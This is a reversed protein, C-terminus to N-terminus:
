YCSVNQLISFDDKQGISSQARKRGHEGRKEACTSDEWSPSGAPEKRGEMCQGDATAMIEDLDLCGTGTKEM